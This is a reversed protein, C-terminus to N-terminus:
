REARFLLDGVGLHGLEVDWYLFGQCNSFGAERVWDVLEWGFDTFVLSGEASMPNGHYVPDAVHVLEGLELRARTRNRAAEPQFPISFLMVGSARLVRAMEAFARRPEAVHEFVDNSLVVDISRDDLSLAEADEHRLGDVITGSELSPGLYESGLLEWSTRSAALAAYMATVQEMAYLVAGPARAMRADLESLALAAMARQRNNLHCLPCEIRERWSPLWIGDAGQLGGWKRDILFDVPRDDVACIGPLSWEEEGKHLVALHHEYDARRAQVAEMVRNAYDERSVVFEVTPQRM